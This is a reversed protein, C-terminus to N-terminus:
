SVELLKIGLMILIGLLIFILQLAASKREASHHLEPILDSGAIYVFGGITLPILIESFTTNNIFLAFATGAVATLASLFNFKLASKINLGSYLLVGFDGIEQPIEHFIIALTTSVGLPISQMYTAGIVLGDFFNHLADGILNMFALPHPHQKSTPVHCHRWRLIKELIFFMLLGSLILLSIQIESLKEYAEPLLHIFADGFLGGVAFSVLLPIYKNVNEIKVFIFLIGILSVLSVIVVSIMPLLIM